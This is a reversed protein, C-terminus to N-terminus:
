EAALMVTVAVLPGTTSKEVWIVHACFGRASHWHAEYGSAQATPRHGKGARRRGSRSTRDQGKKELASILM